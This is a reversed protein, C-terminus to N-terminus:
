DVTGTRHNPNEPPTSKDMQGPFVGMLLGIIRGLADRLFTSNFRDRFLLGDYGMGSVVSILLAADRRPRATGLRILIAEVGELWAKRYQRALGELAPERMAEALFAQETLITAQNHRLQETFYDAIYDALDGALQERGLSTNLSGRALDHDILRNLAAYFSELDRNAKEAFLVFADQILQEIDKFYYTTSALPVGALRAVPRHKIGKVGDRAAIELAAELIRRRRSESKARAAKRGNYHISEQLAGGVTLGADPKNNTM